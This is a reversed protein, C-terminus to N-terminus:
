TVLKIFMDTQEQEYEVKPSKEDKIKNEKSTFISHYM